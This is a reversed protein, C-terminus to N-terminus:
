RDEHSVKKKELLLRCVLNVHSQLESTHEESRLWGIRALVPPEVKLFGGPWLAQCSISWAPQRPKIIPPACTLSFCVLKRILVPSALAASRSAKPSSTRLRTFSFDPMVSSHSILRTPM